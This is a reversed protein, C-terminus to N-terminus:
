RNDKGTPTAATANLDFMVDHLETARWCCRAGKRLGPNWSPYREFPRLIFWAEQRSLKSRGAVVM